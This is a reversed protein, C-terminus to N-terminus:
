GSNYKILQKVADLTLKRLSTRHQYKVSLRNGLDRIYVDMKNMAIVSAAQKWLVHDNHDVMKVRITMSPRYRYRIGNNIPMIQQDETGLTYSIKLSPNNETAVKGPDTAHPYGYPGYPVTGKLSVLPKFHFHLKKTLELATAKYVTDIDSQIRKNQQPTFAGHMSKMNTSNSSAGRLMLLLTVQRDTKMYDNANYHNLYINFDALTVNRPSSTKKLTTTSGCATLLATLIFLELIHYLNFRKSM